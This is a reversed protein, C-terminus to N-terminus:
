INPLILLPATYKGSIVHTYRILANPDQDDELSIMSSFLNIFYSVECSSCRKFNIFNPAFLSSMFKTIESKYLILDLSHKKNFFHSIAFFSM